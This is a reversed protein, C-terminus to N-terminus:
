GNGGNNRPTNGWGTPQAVGRTIAEKQIWKNRRQSVDDFLKVIEEKSKVARTGTSSLAADMLDKAAEDDYEGARESLTELFEAAAASASPAATDAAVSSPSAVVHSRDSGPTAPIAQPSMVPAVPVALLPMKPAASAAAQPAAALAPESPAIEPAATLM